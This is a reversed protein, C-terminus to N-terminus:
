IFVNVSQSHYKVTSTFIAITTMDASIVFIIWEFEYAHTMESDPKDNKRCTKMQSKTCHTRIFM